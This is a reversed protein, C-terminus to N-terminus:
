TVGIHSWTAGGTQHHSTEICEGADQWATKWMFRWDKSQEPGAPTVRDSITTWRPPLTINVPAVAIDNKVDEDNGQRLSCPLPVAAHGLGMDIGSKHERCVNNLFLPLNVAYPSHFLWKM